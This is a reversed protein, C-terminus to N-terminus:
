SSGRDASLSMSGYVTETRALVTRLRRDDAIRAMSARMVATPRVTFFLTSDRPFRAYWVEEAPREGQVPDATPVVVTPASACGALLVLAITGLAASFRRKWLSRYPKKAM